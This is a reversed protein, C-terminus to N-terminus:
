EMRMVTRAKLHMPNPVIASIVPTLLQNEYEITVSIEDGKKRLSQSPAITVQMKSQNLTTTMNLISSNIVSDASGVSALRVGERSANAIVLYNNFLLGFDIIGTLILIVLPLIMAAEVTSQGNMGKKRKLM